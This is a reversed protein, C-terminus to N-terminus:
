CNKKCFQSKKYGTCIHHLNWQLIGTPFHNEWPPEMSGGGGGPCWRSYFYRPWKLTLSPEYDVCGATQVLRRCTCKQKQPMLLPGNSWYCFAVGLTTGNLYLQCINQKLLKELEHWHIGHTDALAQAITASHHCQTHTSVSTTWHEALASAASHHHVTYSTLLYSMKHATTAPWDAAVFQVCGSGFTNNFHIKSM